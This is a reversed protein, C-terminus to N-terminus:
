PSPSGTVSRRIDATRPVPFHRSQQRGRRIFGIAAGYGACRLQHLQNEGCSGQEERNHEDDPEPLRRKARAQDPEAHRQEDRLEHRRELEVAGAQTTAQATSQEGRHTHAVHQQAADHQIVHHTQAVSEIRETTGHGTRNGIRPHLNKGQHEPHRHEEFTGGSEADADDDRCGQEHGQAIAGHARGGQRQDALAGHGPARQGHARHETAFDALNGDDLETQLGNGQTQGVQNGASDEGQAHRAHREHL